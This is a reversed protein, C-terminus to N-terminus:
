VSYRCSEGGGCATEDGITRKVIIYDQDGITVVAGCCSGDIWAQEYNALFSAPVRCDMEQPVPQAEAPEVPAEPVPEQKPTPLPISIKEAKTIELKTAGSAHPTPLMSHFFQIEGGDHRFPLTLGEYARKAETLSEFKGKDLFQATKM